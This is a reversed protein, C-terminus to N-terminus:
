TRRIKNTFYCNSNFNVLKHITTVNYIGNTYITNHNNIAVGNTFNYYTKKVGHTKNIKLNNFVDTAYQNIHKFTNNTNNFTRNGSRKYINNEVHAIQSKYYNSTYTKYSYNLM